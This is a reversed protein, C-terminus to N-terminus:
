KLFDFLYYKGEEVTAMHKKNYIRAYLWPWVAGWWKRKPDMSGVMQCIGDGVDDGEFRHLKEWTPKYNGGIFKVDPFMAEAQSCFRAFMKQEYESGREMILRVVAGPVNDSIYFLVPYVEIGVVALGHAAKWLGGHRVVRIDFLKVGKAVLVDLKRSQCRWVPSALRMWWKTPRYATLCNHAGIIAKDNKGMTMTEQENM